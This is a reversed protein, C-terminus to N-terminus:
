NVLPYCMHQEFWLVMCLILMYQGHKIINRCDSKFIPCLIAFFVQESKKETVWRNSKLMHKSWIIFTDIHTKIEKTVDLPKRIDQKEDPMFILRTSVGTALQKERKERTRGMDPSICKALDELFQCCDVTIQATANNFLYYPDREMRDQISTYGLKSYRGAHTQAADKLNGFNSRGARRQDARTRSSVTRRKPWSKWGAYKQPLAATPGPSSSAVQFLIPM